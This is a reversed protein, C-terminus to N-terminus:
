MCREETSPSTSMRLFIMSLQLVLYISCKTYDRDCALFKKGTTYVVVAKGHQVAAVPVQPEGVKCRYKDDMFVLDAIDRYKVSMEKLYRFYASAYHADEHYARLQRTQVM